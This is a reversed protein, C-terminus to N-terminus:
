HQYKGKPMYTINLVPSFSRGRLHGLFMTEQEPRVNGTEDGTQFVGVAPDAFHGLLSNDLKKLICGGTM